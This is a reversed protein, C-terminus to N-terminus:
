KVVNKILTLINQRNEYKYLVEDMTKRVMLIGLGGIDREEAQLSVDPEKASLPDFPMGCDAFRIEIIEGYRKIGLLMRGSGSEYAYHAINVFIEEIAVTIQIVAKMSADTEGLKEEVLGIINELESEDADFVYVEFGESEHLMIYESLDPGCSKKEIQVIDRDGKQLGAEQATEEIRLNFDDM